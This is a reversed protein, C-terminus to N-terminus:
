RKTEFDMGIEALPILVGWIGDESYFYPEDFKVGSEESNHVLVIDYPNIGYPIECSGNFKNVTAFLSHARIYNHASLEANVATEFNDLADRDPFTAWATSNAVHRAQEVLKNVRDNGPNKVYDFESPIIEWDYHGRPIIRFHNITKWGVWHYISYPVDLSCLDHLDALTARGYNAIISRMDKLVKGAEERSSCMVRDLKFSSYPLYHCSRNSSTNCNKEKDTNQVDAKPNPLKPFQKKRISIAREIYWEAKSLDEVGNKKSYRCIYKIANGICFAEEGSLESTFAKIVDIVELGSESQYHNPHNVNNSM